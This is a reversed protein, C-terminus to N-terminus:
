KCSFATKKYLREYFAEKQINNMKLLRDLQGKTLWLTDTGKVHFMNFGDSDDVVKDIEIIIKNELEFVKEFEKRLNFEHDYSERPVTEQELAKVAIDLAEIKRQWFVEQNYIGWAIDGIIEKAEHRTM